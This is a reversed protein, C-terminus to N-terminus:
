LRAKRRIEAILHPTLADIRFYNRYAARANKQMEVFREPSLNSHFEAICEPLKKIDRFDVTLSFTSYDLQESFPLNRQTDVIVPIRGLSLMEFLRTSANADGRIDLGYDSQLLNNVFEKRLVEPDSEYTHFHGSYSSRILFNCVVKKSGQLTLLARTRFFVGKKKAKYRSDFLGRVRDPLEKVITRLGQRWSLSGWGAFGIIPKTDKARLQLQGNCYVELLDDAYPPIFIENGTRSFRYGGYRLVLVDPPVPNEIDGIGDVLLPKGLRKATARCEEFLEPMVRLVWNHAYPMLVVDAEDAKETVRYYAPDFSHHEFLMHQFPVRKPDLPNGWFPYLLPTHQHGLRRWAPDVFFSLLKTDM